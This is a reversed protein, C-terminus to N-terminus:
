PLKQEFGYHIWSSAHKLKEILFCFTNISWPFSRASLTKDEKKSANMCWLCINLSVLPILPPRGDLFLKDNKSFYSRLRFFVERISFINLSSQRHMPRWMGKPLFVCFSRIFNIMYRPHLLIGFTCVTGYLGCPEERSKRFQRKSYLVSYMLPSFGYSSKSSSLQGLMPLHINCLRYKKFANRYRM